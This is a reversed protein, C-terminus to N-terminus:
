KSAELSINSVYATCQDPYTPRSDKLKMDGISQQKYNTEAVMLSTEAKVEDIKKADTMDGPKKILDTNSNDVLEHATKKQRKAPPKKDSATKTLKRKEMTNGVVLSKEKAPVGTRSEQQTKFMELEQLRPIVKKMALDFDGLSGNEREFRLWSHCIDESGTGTFRKSYCRKYILRAENIHNMETEMAIYGQWVEFVSGSRKILSEWVGRAAVVDKGLTAELRAWYSYLRVLDDSGILEPSLYDAARQFTERILTYELGDQKAGNISIRRRLSDVRTLFLELYEKFSQFVCQTSQEFVARLETESAGLRELALLYNVWLDGVWSCNRTARSYVDKVINPVKLTKDVYSTYAAWLETYMPLESVAREYLIQVRAPDGCSEEFKIYSMFYQLRDADSSDRNSLQDEYTKRASYMDLAKKYAVVVNAPIGDLESNGQEVEWLKYNELTSVLDISPVSFQRQFLARVRHSQKDKEEKNSGDIVLFIAQEYERYAEWIKNGELVHLGAATLAREFLNRMKLVGAPGCQLVLPDREQVFDLYDCWLAVSLYEHVGREYLKEIEPFAEPSTNLSSEDRAWEQWIKPALPFKEAMSERAQRLKEIQGLKRLGHIYKVHADYNWPNEALQSELTEIEVQEVGEEEESDTDSDSSSSSSSPNTVEPIAGEMGDHKEGASEAAPVEEATSTDASAKEGDIEMPKDTTEGM